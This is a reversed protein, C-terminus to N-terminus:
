AAEEMRVPYKGGQARHREQLQIPQSYTKIDTFQEWKKFFDLMAELSTEGNRVLQMLQRRNMGTTQYLDIYREYFRAPELAVPMVAHLFDFYRRDRTILQDFYRKWDITGPLPT